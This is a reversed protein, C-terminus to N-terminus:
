DLFQTTNKKDIYICSFMKRNRAIQDYIKDRLFLPLFKFIIALRYFGGLIKFISLCADSKEFTIGNTYFKISTLTAIANGYINKYTVGNLPAYQLRKNKDLM